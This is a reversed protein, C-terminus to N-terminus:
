EEVGKECLRHKLYNLEHIMVDISKLTRFEMSVIISEPHVVISEHEPASGVERRIGDSALIMAVGNYFQENDVFGIIVNGDGFPVNPVRRGGKFIKRLFDFM